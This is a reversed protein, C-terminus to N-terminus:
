AEKLLGCIIQVPATFKAREGVQSNESPHGPECQNGRADVHHWYPGQEARTHMDGACSAVAYTYSLSSVLRDGGCGLTYRATTGRKRRVVPEGAVQRGLVVRSWFLFPFGRLLAYQQSVKQSTACLIM